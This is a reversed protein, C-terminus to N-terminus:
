VVSKRDRPQLGQSEIMEAHGGIFFAATSKIRRQKSPTVSECPRAMSGASRAKVEVFCLCNGDRLILDIEGFRSRFNRALPVCGQKKAFDLAAEEGRIGLSAAQAKFKKLFSKRHLECPGYEELREYHLKTGYGKHKEFAYLPYKRAAELMYRDRSVKALVSAAAISLSLSDGKVVAEESVGTGPCGCGDILAKDPRVSLRDFARRMALYTANLINLEDIEKESASAIGFSLAKERIIDFLEDRKKESLKKSDNLGEAVFDQPLVVAAAFVPGALPGRGAEDIGCVLKFGEEYAKKEYEFTPRQGQM